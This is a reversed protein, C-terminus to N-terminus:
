TANGGEYETCDSLDGLMIQKLAELQEIVVEVSEVNSFAFITDGSGESFDESSKTGGVVGTGKGTQFYVKGIDRDATVMPTVLIEGTGFKLIRINNTENNM